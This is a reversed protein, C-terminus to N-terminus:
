AGEVSRDARDWSQCSASLPRQATTGRQRIRTAVSLLRLGPPLLVKRLDLQGNRLRLM